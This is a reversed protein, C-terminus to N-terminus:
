NGLFILSTGGDRTSGSVPLNSYSLGSNGGGCCINTKLGDISTHNTSTGDKYTVFVDNVGDHGIGAAFRTYKGNLWQASSFNLRGTSSDSLTARKTYLRRSSQGSFTLVIQFDNICTAALEGRTREAAGSTGSTAVATSGFQSGSATRWSNFGNPFSSTTSIYRITNDNHVFFLYLKNGRIVPAVKLEKVEPHFNMIASTNRVLTNTIRTLNGFNEGDTSSVYFIDSSSGSSVFFLFVRNGWVIASPSVSCNGLSGSLALSPNSWHDGNDAEDCSTKSMWIKNDSNAEAKWYVFVQDNFHVATPTKKTRCNSPLSYDNSFFPFQEANAGTEEFVTAFIQQNSGGRHFNLWLNSNSRFSVNTNEPEEIELPETSTFDENCSFIVSLLVFCCLFIRLM